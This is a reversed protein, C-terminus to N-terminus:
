AVNEEQYRNIYDVFEQLSVGFLNALRQATKISPSRQGSMIRSIYSVDMGLVRAIASLNVYRGMVQIHYRSPQKVFCADITQPGM